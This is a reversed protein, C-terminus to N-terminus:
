MMSGYDVGVWGACKLGVRVDSSSSFRQFLAKVDGDAASLRLGQAAQGCPSRDRRRSRM